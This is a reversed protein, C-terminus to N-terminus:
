IRLGGHGEDDSWWEKELVRKGKWEDEREMLVLLGRAHYNLVSKLSINLSKKL